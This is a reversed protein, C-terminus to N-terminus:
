RWPPLSGDREEPLEPTQLVTGAPFRYIDALHLNQEMLFDAHREDGYVDRAIEDWMQNERTTYTKAM